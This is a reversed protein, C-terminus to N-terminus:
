LSGDCHTEEKKLVRVTRLVCPRRPRRPRSQCRARRRRAATSAPADQRAHRITPARDRAPALVRALCRSSRDRHWIRNRRCPGARCTSRGCSGPHATMTARGHVLARRCDRHRVLHRDRRDHCCAGAGPCSPASHKAPGSVTQLGTCTEKRRATHRMSRSSAGMDTDSARRRRAAYSRRAIM